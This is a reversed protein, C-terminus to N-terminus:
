VYKVSNISSNSRIFSSSLSSAQHHQHHHHHHHHHLTIDSVSCVTCLFRDKNANVDCNPMVTVAGDAAAAAASSSSPLPLPSSATTLNYDTRTSKDEMKRTVGNESEACTVTMMERGDEDEKFIVFRENRKADGVGDKSDAEQRM